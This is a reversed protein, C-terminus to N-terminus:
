QLKTLAIKILVTGCVHDHACKDCRGALFARRSVTFASPFHSVECSEKVKRRQRVVADGGLAEENKLVKSVKERTGQGSTAIGDSM